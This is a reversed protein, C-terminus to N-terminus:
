TPTLGFRLSRSRTSPEMKRRGSSPSRTVTFPVSEFAQTAAHKIRLNIRDGPNLQFDSVTEESVLLGDPIQALTELTRKADGGAFYANSM